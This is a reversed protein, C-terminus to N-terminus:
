QVGHWMVINALATDRAVGTTTAYRSANTLNLLHLYRRIVDKICNVKKPAVLVRSMKSYTFMIQM